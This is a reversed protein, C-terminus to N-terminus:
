TSVHQELIESILISRSVNRISAIADLKVVTSEPIWAWTQMRPEGTRPRQSVMTHPAYKKRKVSVLEPRCGLERSLAVTGKTWDIKSWDCIPTM